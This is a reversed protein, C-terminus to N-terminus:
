TATERGATLHAGIVGAVVAVILMWLVGVPPRHFLEHAEGGVLALLVFFTTVIGTLIAGSSVGAVWRSGVRAARYGAWLAVPVLVVNFTYKSLTTTWLLEGVEQGPGGTFYQHLALLQLEALVVFSVMAVACPLALAKLYRKM